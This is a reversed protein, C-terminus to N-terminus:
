RGMPDSRRDEFSSAGPESVYITVDEDYPRGATDEGSAYSLRDAFGLGRLAALVRLVDDHDEFDYTYVLTVPRHSGDSTVTTRAAFGLRGSRTASKVTQWTEEHADRASEVVWKGARPYVVGPPTQPSAIYRWSTDV